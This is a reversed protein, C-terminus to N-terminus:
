KPRQASAKGHTPRRLQVFIRAGEGPTSEAWIRGGQQDVLTKAFYLGLGSGPRDRHQPLRRFPVFVRDLEDPPIGPGSDAVCLTCADATTQCTVAIKGPRRDIFKVANSFLNGLVERLRV